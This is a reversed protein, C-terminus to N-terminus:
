LKEFFSNKLGGCESHPSSRKHGTKRATECAKKEKRFSVRFNIVRGGTKRVSSLLFFPLPIRLVCQISFIVRCKFYVHVKVNSDCDNANSLFLFNTYPVTLFFCNSFCCCCAFIIVLFFSAICNSFFFIACVVRMYVNLMCM